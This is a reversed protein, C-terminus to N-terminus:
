RAQKKSVTGHLSTDARLNGANLLVAEVAQCIALCLSHLPEDHPLAKLAALTKRVDAPASLFGDLGAPLQLRDRAGALRASWPGDSSLDKLAAEAMELLDSSM